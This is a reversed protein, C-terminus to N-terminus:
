GLRLQNGSQRLRGNLGMEALAQRAQQRIQQLHRANHQKSAELYLAMQLSAGWYLNDAIRQKEADSMSAMSTTMSERFQQVLTDGRLGGALDVQEAIAYQVFIWYVLATAVSNPDYGDQRLAQRIQGIVNANQLRVVERERTANLAGNARLSERLHQAMQRHSQALVADSHRYRHANPQSQATTQRPRSTTRSSSSSRTENRDRLREYNKRNEEVNRRYMDDMVNYGFATGETWAWYAQATPAATVCAMAAALALTMMKRPPFTM